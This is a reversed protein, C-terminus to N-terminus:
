YNLFYNQKPKSSPPTKPKADAQQETKETLQEEYEKVMAMYRESFGELNAYIREFIERQCALEEENFSGFILSVGRKGLEPYRDLLQRGEETVDLWVNRRDDPMRRREAFGKAELKDCLATIAGSTLDLQEALDGLKQIGGLQISRLILLGPLAIDEVSIKDREKVFRRVMRRFLWDIEEMQSILDAM